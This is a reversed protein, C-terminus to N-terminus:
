SERNRRFIRDFISRQSLREVEVRTSRIESSLEEVVGLKKTLRDLQQEVKLLKEGILAPDTAQLTEVASRFEVLVCNLSEIATRAVSALDLINANAEGLGTGAKALSKQLEDFQELRRVVEAARRETEGLREQLEELIDM